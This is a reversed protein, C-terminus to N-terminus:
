IKLLSMHYIFIELERPSLKELEDVKSSGSAISQMINALVKAEPSEDTLNFKEFTLTAASKKM